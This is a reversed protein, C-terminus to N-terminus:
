NFFLYWESIFMDRNAAIADKLRKLENAKLGIEDKALKAGDRELWFKASRSRDSGRWVHVHAKEDNENSFFGISFGEFEM